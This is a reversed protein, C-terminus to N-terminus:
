ELRSQTRSSVLSSRLSSRRSLGGSAHPPNVQDSNNETPIITPFLETIADYLESNQSINDEDDSVYSSSSTRDECYMTIPSIILM